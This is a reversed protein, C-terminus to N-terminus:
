NVREHATLLYPYLTPIRQDTSSVAETSPEKGDIEMTQLEVGTSDEAQRQRKVCRKSLCDPLFKRIRPMICYRVVVAFAAVLTLVLSAIYWFSFRAHGDVYHVNHLQRLLLDLPMDNITTLQEPIDINSVNPFQEKFPKWVVDDTFNAIKLQTYQEHTMNTKGVVYPQSLTFFKNSAICGSDIKIVDVPSRTHVETHLGNCVLAFSLNTRSIILWTTDLLYKAIPLREQSVQPTCYDTKRADMFLNILCTHDVNVPFEPSILTCFKTRHHSCTQVETDSLLRYSTRAKDILFANSELRYNALLDTRKTRGRHKVGVPPPVPISIAEFVEYSNDLRIVPISLIIIIKGNVFATETRMYKYFEWIETKPDNILSMLDPLAKQIEVLLSQLRPPSIITVPLKGLALYDLDARLQTLYTKANQTLITIESILLNLYSYIELFRRNESIQKTLEQAMSNIKIDMAYLSRIIKSMTRRNERILTRSENIITLSQEVIHVIQKQNYELSSVQNRINKLDSESVVGFLWSM